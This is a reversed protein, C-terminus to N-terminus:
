GEKAIKILKFIINYIKNDGQRGTEYVPDALVDLMKSFKYGSSMTRSRMLCTSFYSNMTLRVVEPTTELSKYIDLSKVWEGLMVSKCLEMLGPNNEDLMDGIINQAAKLSWSGEDNIQKLWILVRRPVGKAEEAIYDLVEMNFDMAEFEAVNKLIYMISTKNLQNFAMKYCREYLAPKLKNPENTCFIFYVHSYGDELIKLLLDQAHTTLKHAEDFIIIKYRSFMPAMDLSSIISDVDDKGSQRGVNIELVDSNIGKLTKTCTKCVLCPESTPKNQAICNLGLAIIRAASTKGCGPPGTFLQTHAITGKLLNSKIINKNTDQGVLEDITCPRFSVHLDNSSHKYERKVLM